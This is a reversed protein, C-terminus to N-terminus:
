NQKKRIEVANFIKFVNSDPTTGGKNGTGDACLVLNKGM